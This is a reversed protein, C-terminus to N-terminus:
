CKKVCKEVFPSHALIIYDDQKLQKLKESLRELDNKYIFGGSILYKSLENLAKLSKEEKTYRFSLNPM